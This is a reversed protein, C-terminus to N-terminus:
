WFNHSIADGTWIVIDPKIEDRIYALMTELTYVPLDCKFEGWKRALKSADQQYGSDPRCCMPTGCDSNSGVTYDFDVHLDSM